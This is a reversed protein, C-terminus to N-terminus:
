HILHGFYKEDAVAFRQPILLPAHLTLVVARESRCAEVLRALEPTTERSRSEGREVAAIEATRVLRRAADGVLRSM